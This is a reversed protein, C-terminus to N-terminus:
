EPFLWALSIRQTRQQAKAATDRKFPVRRHFGTLQWSRFSPPALLLLALSASIGGAAVVSPSAGVAALAFSAAGAAIPAAAPALLVHDYGPIVLKGSILREVPSIPMRYSGCYIGLRIMSGMFAFLVTSRVADAGGFQSRVDAISIIAWAWCAVMACTAIAVRIPVIPQCNPPIMSLWGINQPSRRLPDKEWPFGRLSWIMAVHAFLLLGLTSLEVWPFALFFRFCFAGTLAIIYACWPLTARLIVLAPMLYGFACAVLVALMVVPHRVAAPIFAGLVLADWWAFAVPGLPLRMGPRWPTTQLWRLYDKQVIPHFAIARGVGYGLGVICVVLLRMMRLDAQTQAPWVSVGMGRFMLWITLEFGFYVSPGGLALAWVWWPIQRIAKM